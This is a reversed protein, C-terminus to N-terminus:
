GLTVILIAVYHVIAAVITCLHFIEHFGFWAPWPNPRKLAYVVAGLTYILGGLSILGLILWGGAAYFEGVWGVAAWGMALYLIVHIWRPAGIWLLQSATGLAAVIWIVWLLTTASEPSLLMLALPTYSAAIFIFINAHDARRLMAQSRPKWTGRHYTASTGFLAVAAVLWVAGGIRGPVTPALAILVIGMVLALPTMVAHLWGRLRPKPAPTASSM